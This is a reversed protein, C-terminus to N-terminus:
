NESCDTLWEYLNVTTKSNLQSSEIATVDIYKNGCIVSSGQNLYNPEQVTGSDLTCPSDSKLTDVVGKFAVVFAYASSDVPTWDRYAKALIGSRVTVVGVM